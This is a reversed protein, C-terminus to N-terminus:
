KLAAAAASIAMYELTILKEINKLSEIYETERVDEEKFHDALLKNTEMIQKSIDHYNKQFDTVTPATIAIMEQFSSEVGPNEVELELEEEASLITVILALSLIIKKM